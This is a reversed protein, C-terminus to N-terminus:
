LRGDSFLAVSTVCMDTYLIYQYEWQPPRTKEVTSKPRQVCRPGSGVAMEPGRRFVNPISKLRVDFVRIQDFVVDQVIAASIPRSRCPVELMLMLM